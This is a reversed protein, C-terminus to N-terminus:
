YRCMKAHRRAYFLTPFFVLSSIGFLYGWGMTDALWGSAGSGIVRVLSGFSCLAIFQSTSPSGNQRCAQSLIILFTANALGSIFSEIGVIIFLSKLHHGIWSQVIFLLCSISQGAACIVGTQSLGFFRVFIASILSGIVTLSLGFSKTVNAVELKSYGMEWLFPTIMANMVTDGWKFFIIWGLIIPTTPNSKMKQWLQSYMKKQPISIQEEPTSESPVSMLVAITGILWLACGLVSYATKWDTFHAIYLAGAGGCIMGLRFGVTEFSAAWAIEKTSVFILRTRDVLCDHTAACLSAGTACLATVWPMMNPKTHGLAILCLGLGTQALLLWSKARGMNSFNSGHRELWPPLLFKFSYPITVAVFLGITTKTLGCESLWYSLTSLTLLFATGSIGGLVLLASKM